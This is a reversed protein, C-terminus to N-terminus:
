SSKNRYIKHIQKSELRWYTMLFTSNQLINLYRITYSNLLNNKNIINKVGLYYYGESLTLRATM